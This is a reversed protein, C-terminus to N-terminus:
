RTSAMAMLWLMGGYSLLLTGLSALLWFSGIAYRKNFYADRCKDGFHDFYEWGFAGAFLGITGGILLGLAAAILSHQAGFVVGSFAGVATLFLM